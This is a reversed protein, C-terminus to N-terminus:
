SRPLRIIRFGVGPLTAQDEAFNLRSVEDPNSFYSGGIFIKSSGGSNGHPNDELWEAVNGALDFLGTQGAPFAGSPATFTYHDNIYLTPKKKYNITKFLSTDALNCVPISNPAVQFNNKYEQQFLVNWESFTPLRYTYKTDLGSLWNCFAKADSWSVHVVPHTKDVQLAGSPNHEWSIGDKLIDGNCEPCRVTTKGRQDASGVYNSQQIFIEYWLVPTEFKCIEWDPLVDNTIFALQLSQLMHELREKRLWNQENAREAVKLSFNNQADNQQFRYTKVTVYGSNTKIQYEVPNSCQIASIPNVGPAVHFSKNKISVICSIDSEITKIIAATSSKTNKVAVSAKGTSEPKAAVPTNRCDTECPCGPSGCCGCSQTYAIQLALTLMSLTILTRM